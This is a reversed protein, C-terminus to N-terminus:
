LADLNTWPAEGRRVREMSPQYQARWADAFRGWDVRLGSAAGLAEGERIVSSRWDVVTGFVDFTLAKVSVPMAPKEEGVGGPPTLAWRRVHRASSGSLAWM